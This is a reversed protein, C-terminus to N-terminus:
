TPSLVAYLTRLVVYHRRWVVVHPVHPIFPLDCCACRSSCTM